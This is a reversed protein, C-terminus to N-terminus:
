KGFALRPMMMFITPLKNSQALLLATFLFTPNGTKSDTFVM